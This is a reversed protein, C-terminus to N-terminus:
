FRVEFESIYKQVGNLKSDISATKSFVPAVPRPPRPLSTDGKVRAIAQELEDDM